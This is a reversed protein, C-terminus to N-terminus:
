FLLVWLRTSKATKTTRWFLLILTFIFSFFFLYLISLDHWPILFITSFSLVTTGITTPAGPVTGLPKSFISFFNTIFPLISVMWVVAYNLNAVISLLTRSVLPCKDTFCWLFVALQHKHSFSVLLLSIIIIWFEFPGSLQRFTCYVLFFFNHSIPYCKEPM